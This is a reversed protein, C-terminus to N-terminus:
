NGYLEQTFKSDLQIPRTDGHFRPSMKDIASRIIAARCLRSAASLHALVRRFIELNKAFRLPSGLSQIFPTSSYFWLGSTKGTEGHNSRGTNRRDDFARAKWCVTQNRGGRM